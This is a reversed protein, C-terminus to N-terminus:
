YYFDLKLFEKIKILPCYLRNSTANFINYQM